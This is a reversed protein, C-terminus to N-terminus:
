TDQYCFLIGHGQNRAGSRSIVSATVTTMQSEYALSTTNWMGYGCYQTDNTYFQVNGSGDPQFKVTQVVSQVTQNNGGGGGGCGALAAIVLFAVCIVMKKRFM